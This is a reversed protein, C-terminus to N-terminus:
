QIVTYAFSAKIEIYMINTYNYYYIERQIMSILLNQSKGTKGLTCHLTEDWNIGWKEGTQRSVLCPTVNCDELLGPGVNEGGVTFVSFGYRFLLLDEFCLLTLRGWYECHFVKAAPLSHSGITMMKKKNILITVEWGSWVLRTVRSTKTGVGWYELTILM